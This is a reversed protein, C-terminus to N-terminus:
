SSSGKTMATGLGDGCKELKVIDRVNLCLENERRGQQGDEDGVDELKKRDELLANPVCYGETILRSDVHMYFPFLIVPTALVLNSFTAWRGSTEIGPIKVKVTIFDPPGSTAAKSYASERTMPSAEGKSLWVWPPFNLPSSSSKTVAPRAELTSSLFYESISLLLCQIPLKVWTFKEFDKLVWMDMVHPISYDYHSLWLDQRLEALNLTEPNRIVCPPIPLIWFKEADLDFSLIQEDERREWVLDIKWHLSGNVLAPNADMLHPCGEELMRWASCCDAISNDTGYNSITLIECGLEFNNPNDYDNKRYFCRVVKYENKSPMYGFGVTHAGIKIEPTFQSIIRGEHDATCLLLKEDVEAIRYDVQPPTLYDGENLLTMKSSRQYHLRHFDPTSVFRCFGKSVGDESLAMEM